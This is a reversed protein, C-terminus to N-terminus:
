EPNKPNFIQPDFVLKLSFDIKGDSRIVVNVLSINKVLPSNKFILFQQGLIEFNEVNGGISVQNRNHDLEVAYFWIKPHSFEQIFDFIESTQQRDKILKSFDDIKKQYGLVKDELSKEEVTKGKKLEDELAVLNASSKKLFNGLVFYVVITIILVAISFYFLITQWLPAKKVPKPIIEVMIKRIIEKKELGRLAVGVAIAYSPGMEKLKRELIPPYFINLFPDAIEIEKNFNEEFYKKIGPIMASGGTIIIKKTDKGEAQCFSLSVKKIENIILDILPLLIERINKRPEGVSVDMQALGYEEKLQEAKKYDINLSRALIATLENASIDLSYSRKLFGNDVVSCTTSQAGIDVLIVTDKREGVLSRALGFVEAELAVLELETLKAIEQCQNIVENPVAVLLIKFKAEKQKPADEEIIQWDLTVESLPLPVYQRAEAEVAQPLEEITMPPLEINTFFSSFDPISFIARKTKIKAEEVIALIARAVDETSLLLTNKDFSRFPKDFMASASIEGYNELKQREKSGSLEVLRVSSTGIDIGIARKSIIKLPTWTM